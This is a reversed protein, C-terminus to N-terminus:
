NLIPDLIFPKKEGRPAVILKNAGPTPDFVSPATAAPAPAVPEGNAPQLSASPPLDLGSKRGCGGLACALALLAIATIRSTARHSTKIVIRGKFAAGGYLPWGTRALRSRPLKKNELGFKARKGAAQAM